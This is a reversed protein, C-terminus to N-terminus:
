TKNERYLSPLFKFDNYSSFSSVPSQNVLAIKAVCSSGNSNKATDLVNWFGLPTPGEYFWVVFLKQVPIFHSFTPISYPFFFFVSVFHCLAPLCSFSLPTLDLRFFFSSEGGEIFVNASFVCRVFRRRAQPDWGFYWPVNKKKKM